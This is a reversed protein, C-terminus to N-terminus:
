TFSNGHCNNQFYYRHLFLKGAESLVPLIGLMTRFWYLSNIHKLTIHKQVHVTYSCELTYKMLLNFIDIGDLVGATLIGLKKVWQGVSMLKQVDHHDSESAQYFM